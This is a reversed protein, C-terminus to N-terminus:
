DDGREFHFAKGSKSKRHGGKRTVATDYQAPKAKTKSWNAHSEGSKTHVLDSKGKSGHVYYDQKYKSALRAAHAKKMGPVFFSKEHSVHTKGTKPDDEQGRGMVRKYGYGMKRLRKGMFKTAKKNQGSTREGRHASLVAYDGHHIHSLTRQLGGESLDRIVFFRM